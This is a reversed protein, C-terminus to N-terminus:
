IEAVAKKLIDLGKDIEAYSINLPPLIRVKEKATILILGKELAKKVVQSSDKEKLKVGIMMGLGSVQEVEDMALLKERMYAGKEAVEKLFDETMFKIVAIGGACIVPNGGFTTGHDGHTLVNCTKEGFLIGGIPLGGGLGKAVTVLDPKIGYHEYAFLKGTRGIGAQVEDCILLIDKEACLSEIEKVYERELEQVGGEGQVIEIMIACTKETIKSKLDEIDNPIAYSFGPSFPHFNKHYSEQGTATLTTMTRGHFSNVLTIIDTRGNGQADTGYKLNSYKRATKIAGENAEAGSNAFFMKLFSTKEVLLEALKGCPETYFLNSTHQLKHLQETIASVWGEHCFGLSNVGIGASFDIYEKGEPSYCLAGKGKEIVLDYRNYTGMIYKHDRQVTELKTM